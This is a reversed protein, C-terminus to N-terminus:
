EWGPQPAGARTEAVVDPAQDRRYARDQHPSDRCLPGIRGGAGQPGEEVDAEHREGAEKEEGPGDLGLPPREFISRGLRSLYGGPPGSRGKRLSCGTCSPMRPKGFDPFVVRNLVSVAERWAVSLYAVELWVLM